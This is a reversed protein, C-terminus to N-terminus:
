DAYIMEVRQSANYLSFRRLAQETAKRSRTFTTSIEPTPTFIDRWNTSVGTLHDEWAESHDLYRSRAKKVAFHWPMVSVDEVDASTEVVETLGATAAAPVARALAEEEAPVLRQDKNASVEVAQTMGDQAGLLAQESAEIASLLRNMERNAQFWDATVLAVVVLSLTLVRRIRILRRRSSVRSTGVPDSTVTVGAGGTGTARLSDFPLACCAWFQSDDRQQSGVPPVAKRPCAGVAGSPERAM